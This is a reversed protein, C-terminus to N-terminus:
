AGVICSRAEVLSSFFKMYETEMLEKKAELKPSDDGVVAVKSVNKALLNQEKFELSWIKHASLNVVEYGIM